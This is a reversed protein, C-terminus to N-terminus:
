WEEEALWRDVVAAFFPDPTQDIAAYTKDLRETVQERDTSELYEALARAYLESRSMKRQQALRDAARFIADPISVATKMGRAYGPYSETIGDPFRRGRRECRRGAASLGSRRRDRM